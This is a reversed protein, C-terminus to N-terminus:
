LPFFRFSRLFKVYYFYLLFTIGSDIILSLYFGVGYRLLVPLIIFFALSPIVLYFIEISLTSVEAVNGREIYIWIFALFSTLPISALVSALFSFRKSLESIFVVLVATVLVKVVYYIM